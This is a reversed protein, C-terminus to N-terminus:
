VESRERVLGTLEMGIYRRCPVSHFHTAAQQRRSSKIRRRDQTSRLARELGQDEHGSVVVDSDRTTNGCTGYWRSVKLFDLGSRRVFGAKKESLGARRLVESRAASSAMEMYVWKSRLSAPPRPPVGLFLPLLVGDSTCAAQGPHGPHCCSPTAAPLCKTLSIVSLLM